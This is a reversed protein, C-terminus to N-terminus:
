VNKTEELMEKNEIGLHKEIEQEIYKAERITKIGGILQVHKKGNLGNMEAKIRYSPRGNPDTYKQTYLQSIRSSDFSVDKRLKKPRHEVTIENETVKIFTKHRKLSLVSVLVPLSILLFLLPLIIPIKGDMYGLFTLFGFAPAISLVLIESLTIAQQMSLELEDGFYFHEIGDPQEIAVDQLSKTKLKKVVEDIAFVVNCSNCKAIKDNINIEDATVSSDCSPCKVKEFEDKAEGFTENLQLKLKHKPKYTM